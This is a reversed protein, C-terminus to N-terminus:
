KKLKPKKLKKNNTNKLKSFSIVISKNHIGSWHNTGLQNISYPTIIGKKAQNLARFDYKYKLYRRGNRFYYVLNGNEDKVEHELSTITKVRCIQKLKNFWVIIVNHSGRNPIGLDENNVNYVKNINVFKRKYM